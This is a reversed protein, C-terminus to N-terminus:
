FVEFVEKYVVFFFVEDVRELVVVLNIFFLFFMLGWLLKMRGNFFEFIRRLVRGINFDVFYM